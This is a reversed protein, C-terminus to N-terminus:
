SRGKETKIKLKPRGDYGYADHLITLLEDAIAKDTSTDASYTKWYNPARGPDAFGAAHLRAVREPTLIRALAEWSDASQAECYFEQPEYRCQVYGADIDLVFFFRRASNVRLRQVEATVTGGYIKILEAASAIESGPAEDAGPAYSCTYLAFRAMAPSDNIM